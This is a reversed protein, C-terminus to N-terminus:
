CERISAVAGQRDRGDAARGGDPRGVETRPDLKLHLTSSCSPAGQANIAQRTSSLGFRRRPERGIFINQAVTLHPM